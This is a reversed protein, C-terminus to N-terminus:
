FVSKGFIKLISKAQVNLGKFNFVIDNFLICDNHWTKSYNKNIHM